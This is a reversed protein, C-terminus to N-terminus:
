CGLSEDGYLTDPYRDGKVREGGVGSTEAGMKLEQGVVVACEEDSDRRGRRWCRGGFGSGCVFRRASLIDNM